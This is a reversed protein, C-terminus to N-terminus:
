QLGAPLTRVKTSAEALLRMISPDRLRGALEEAVTRAQAAEDTRGLHQCALAVENLLRARDVDQPGHTAITSLARAAASHALEHRGLTNYTHALLYDSREQEVWDGAKFWFARSTGAGNELVEDEFASREAVDLLLSVIRGTLAAIRRDCCTKSELSDAMRLVSAFLGVGGAREGEQLLLVVVRLRVAIVSAVGDPGPSAMADLEAALGVALCGAMLCAASLNELAVRAEHAPVRELARRNLEAARHWQSLRGGVIENVLETFQNAEAAVRVLAVSAELLEAALEPAEQHIGGITDVLEYWDMEGLIATTESTALGGSTSGPEAAQVEPTTTLAVVVLPPGGEM